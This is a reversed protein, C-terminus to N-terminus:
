SLPPFSLRSQERFLMPPSGQARYSTHKFLATVSLGYMPFDALLTCSAAIRESYHQDNNFLPRM